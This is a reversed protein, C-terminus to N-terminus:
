LRWNTIVRKGACLERPSLLKLVSHLCDTPLALWGSFQGDSQEEAMDSGNADKECRMVGELRPNHVKFM